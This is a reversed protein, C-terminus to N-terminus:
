GYYQTILPQNVRIFERLEAIQEPSLFRKYDRPWASRIHNNKLKYQVYDFIREDFFQEENDVKAKYQPRLSHIVKEFDGGQCLGKSVESAWFTFDDMMDEYRVVKRNVRDDRPELFSWKELISAGGFQAEGKLEMLAYQFMSINGSRINERQAKQEDTWNSDSHTYGHSFFQSVCIDLPDRIQAVDFIETVFSNDIIHKNLLYSRLPGVVSDVKAHNADNVGKGEGNASYLPMEFKEALNVAIKYSFMSATKHPFSFSFIRM